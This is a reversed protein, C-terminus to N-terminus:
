IVKFKIESLINGSGDVLKVVWRGKASYPLLKSTSARWRNGLIAIKRKFVLKDNKFWEHFLVQGKMNNIETFYYVGVAKAKNTLIPVSVKGVPEKNNLEKVLVARSVRKDFINALTMVRRVKNYEAQSAIKIVPKIITEKTEEVELRISQEPKIKLTNIEYKVSNPQKITEVVVEKKTEEYSFAYILLGLIIIFMFVAILIREIHWETVMKPQIQKDKEKDYNIKIVVKNNTM